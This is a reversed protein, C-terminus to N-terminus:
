LTNPGNKGYFGQEWRRQNKNANQVLPSFRALFVVLRNLWNVPWRCPRLFDIFLVVREGSTDNHVEHELSDDFILVEGPHWTRHESGVRIWCRDAPQPIILGLHLRLVGNYPGRHPPIRKGPELISYFATRVGPIHRLAHTTQPCHQQNRASPVGYGLLMFTKWQDDQNIYGVEESIDQFAPLRDRLRLLSQAEDRIVQWETKLADTWPFQSSEFFPGVGVRSSARVHREIWGLAAFILKGIRSKPQNFPREQVNM